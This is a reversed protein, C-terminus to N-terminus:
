RAQAGYARGFWLCTRWQAETLKGTALLELAIGRGMKAHSASFGRGDNTKAGDCVGAVSMVVAAAKKEADTKAPRRPNKPDDVLAPTSKPLLSEIEELKVERSGRAQEVSGEVIGMKRAILKRVHQDLPHNSVLHTVLVANKTGIRYCRDEAQSNDAPVWSLDVFLVNSARTLTLATSAAAITAGIGVYKGGQFDQEIQAREKQPTDGTIVAWGARTSLEDIVYRHASFVVLPEGSEEHNEIVEMAASLKSQALLARTKAMKDFPIESVDTAAWVEPGLKAIEAELKRGDSAPLDVELVRHLKDPLDVLVDKKLRRILVSKLRAGVEPKPQGWTMGGWQNKKGSFLRVFEAWSGFAERAVGAVDLVQWLDSPRSPLPTGTLFIAREVSASLTAVRMARLSKRNKCYHAEDCVLVVEYGRPAASPNPPLIDYNVVVIEGAEPWRFSGRGELVTVRYDDRWIGAERRWVGKAISPCVVLVGADDADPLSCLTQASKGLGMDDCNVVRKRSSMWVVGLRQFNFLARGRAQLKRDLHHLRKHASEVSSKADQVEGELLRRVEATLIVVFGADGLKGAIRMAIEPTAAWTKSAGDFRAGACALRFADFHAGLYSSAEVVVRGGVERMVVKPQM